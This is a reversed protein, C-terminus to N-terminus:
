IFQSCLGFNGMIAYLFSHNVRDFTNEMDLKIIMSAEGNTKRTHIEEQVLIINELIQRNKM